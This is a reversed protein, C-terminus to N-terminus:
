TSSSDGGRYRYSSGFYCYSFCARTDKRASIDCCATQSAISVFPFPVCDIDAISIARPGSGSGGRCFGTHAFKSSALHKNEVQMEM